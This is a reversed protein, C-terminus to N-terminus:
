DAKPYNPGSSSDGSCLGKLDEFFSLNIEALCYCNEGIFQTDKSDSIAREESITADQVPFDIMFVGGKSGKIM